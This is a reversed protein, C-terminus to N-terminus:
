SGEQKWRKLALNLAGLIICHQPNRVWHKRFALCASEVSNCKGWGWVAMFSEWHMNSGELHFSAGLLWALGTLERLQEWSLPPPPGRTDLSRAGQPGGAVPMTQGAGLVSQEACPKTGM